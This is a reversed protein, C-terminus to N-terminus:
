LSTFLFVLTEAVELLYDFRGSAGGHGTDEMKLLLRKHLGLDRLKRVFKLPEWYTVRPDELGSSIYLHPYNKGTLNDYPSYSKIYDFAKKDKIPNGWQKFEGPTLPLTDDLMTNLVDLFPVAMFAAKYLEPAKNLCYGILMGGASGGSIALESSYGKAKLFKSIAIFDEFTNKKHFKKGAEYWAKGKEGGGRIHGIAYVWGRDILPLISARFHSTNVIGYSGYGYLLTPRPGKLGKKYFITVPVEVPGNLYPNDDLIEEGHYTAPVLVKEYTIEYLDPDFSPLAVKRVIKSKKEKLNYSYLIKPERLSSFQFFFEELEFPSDLYVLDYSKENFTITEVKKLIEGEEIKYLTLEVLGNPRAELILYGKKLYFNTLAQDSLPIIEEETLDQHIKVLRQNYGKDNTLKFFVNAYPELSEEIGEKRLLFLKEKFDWGFLRIESSDYSASNVLLASKDSAKEISLSFTYDKEHYMEIEEGSTLDKYFVKEARLFENAPIYFLGFSEENWLFDGMTNEIEIIQRKSSIEEIIIKYKQGGSYDLGYALFKECPSVQYDIIHCYNKDRALAEEDLFIDEIVQDTFLDAIISERTVGPNAKRRARKWYQDEESIFSYYYYNKDLLPIKYDKLPIKAKIEEFFENLLEKKDQFFEEIFNKEEALLKLIKEDQIKPWAKDRLWSYNDIKQM